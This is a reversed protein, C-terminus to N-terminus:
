PHVQTPNLLNPHHQVRRMPLIAYELLNTRLSATGINFQHVQFERIVRQECIKFRLIMQRIHMYRTILRYSPNRRASPIAKTLKTFPLKKALQNETPGKNEGEEEIGQIGQRRSSNARQHRKSPFSM